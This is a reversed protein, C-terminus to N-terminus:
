PGSKPAARLSEAGSLYQLAAFDLVDLTAPVGDSWARLMDSDRVAKAFAEPDKEIKAFVPRARQAMNSRHRRAILALILKYAAGAVVMTALLFWIDGNGSPSGYLVLVAGLSALLCTVWIGLGALCGPQYKNLLDLLDNKEIARPKGHNDLFSVFEHLYTKWPIRPARFLSWSRRPEVTEVIARTIQKTSVVYMKTFSRIEIDLEIVNSLPFCQGNLTVSDEGFIVREVPIPKGAPLDLPRDRIVLRRHAAQLDSLDIGRELAVSRATELFDPRYDQGNLLIELVEIDSKKKLTKLDDEQM